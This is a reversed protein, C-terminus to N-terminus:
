SEMETPTASKKLLAYYFGDHTGLTPLQQRGSQLAIGWPVELPVAIANPNSSLMSDIVQENEAQLISCTTYLLTGGPKLLNWVSEILRRQQAGLKAIDDAQRLMKIDPHRRIIGTGTCPADLLVHDFQGIDAAKLAFADAVKVDCDLRLRALNERVTELRDADIDVALVNAGRELLHTTKGGPAACVDLIRTGKVEGFLPAALQSAEDQVSCSGADFGPLHTVPVAQNIRVGTTAFECATANIGAAQLSALYDARSSHAPNIRITLPGPENNATTIATLHDPWDHRLANLLWSPHAHSADEAALRTELDAKERLYRRLTANLLGRAWPKRLQGALDVTEKVSAHDPTRMHRIQFLGLLLAFGVDVNKRALPKDLLTDRLWELLTIHRMVGLALAAARPSELTPARHGNSVQMLAQHATLLDKM